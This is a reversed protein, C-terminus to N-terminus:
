KVERRHVWRELDKPQQYDTLKDLVDTATSGSILLQEHESYIFGELRAHEILHFMPAFYGNVDLVGIPKRHLGIQSWTLIEFLEEFTGFGGPMAIFADALEAMRAKRLHMDGVVQLESLGNHMLEPTEFIRPIVGIAHGGNGLVADALRGMMGTSGAGYVLGIGRESLARGMEDAARLYHEEIKDSSGCYVCVTKLNM